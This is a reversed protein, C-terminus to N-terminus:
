RLQTKQTGVEIDIEMNFVKDVGNRKEVWDSTDITAPIMLSNGDIQVYISPSALLERLWLFDVENIYDSILKMKHTMINNYNIKTEGGYNDYYRYLEVFSQGFPPTPVFEKHTILGNKTYSNREISTSKKNVGSFLFSEYGGLSNLFTVMVPNNKTCNYDFYIRSDNFLNTIADGDVDFKIYQNDPTLSWNLDGYYVQHHFIGYGTLSSPIPHFSGDYTANITSGNYISPRFIPIYVRYNDSMQIVRDRNTTLYTGGFNPVITNIDELMTENTFSPYGYWAYSTEYLINTVITGNVDEYGYQITYELYGQNYNDKINVGIYNSLIKSMDIYQYIYQSSEIIPAKMERIIFNGGIYVDFIYRNIGYPLSTLSDEGFTHILPRFMSRMDTYQYNGQLIALAM